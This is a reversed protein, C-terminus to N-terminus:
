EYDVQVILGNVPDGVSWRSLEKDPVCNYIRSCMVQLISHPILERKANKYHSSMERKVIIENVPVSLHKFIIKTSIFMSICKHVCGHTNINSHIM